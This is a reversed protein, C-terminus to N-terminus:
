PRDTDTHQEHNPQNNNEWPLLTEDAQDQDECSLNRYKEALRRAEERQWEANFMKEQTRALRLLIEDLQDDLCNREITVANLRYTLLNITEQQPDEAMLNGLEQKM